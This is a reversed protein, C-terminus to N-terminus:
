HGGRQGNQENAIFGWSGKKYKSNLRIERERIATTKVGREPTRFLAKKVMKVLTLYNKEKM